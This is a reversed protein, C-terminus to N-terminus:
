MRGRRLKLFYNFLKIFNTLLQIFFYIHIYIFLKISFLNYFLKEIKRMKKDMIMLLLFMKNLNNVVFQLLLILHFAGTLNEELSLTLSKNFSSCAQKQLM